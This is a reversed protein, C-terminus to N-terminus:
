VQEPPLPRFSDAVELAQKLVGMSNRVSEEDSEPVGIHYGGLGIMSVQAGTRGLRRKPMVQREPLKVQNEKPAGAPPGDDPASGKCGVFLASVAGLFTRRTAAKAM